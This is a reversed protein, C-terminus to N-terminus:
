FFLQCYRSSEAGKENLENEKAKFFYDTFNFIVFRRFIGIIIVAILGMYTYM